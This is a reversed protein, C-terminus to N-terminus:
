AAAERVMVSLEDLVRAAETRMRKNDLYRFGLISGTLESGLFM